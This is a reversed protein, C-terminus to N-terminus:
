ANKANRFLAVTGEESHRENLSFGITALAIGPQRKWLGKFSRELVLALSFFHTFSLAVQPLTVFKKRFPCRSALGLHSSEGWGLPATQPWHAEINAHDVYRKSLADQCPM